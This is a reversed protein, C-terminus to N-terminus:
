AVLEVALALMDAKYQEDTSPVNDPLNMISSPINAVVFMGSRALAKAQVCTEGYVKLEEEDNAMIEFLKMGMMEINTLDKAGKSRRALGHLTAGRALNSGSKLIRASAPAAKTLLQESFRAIRAEATVETM